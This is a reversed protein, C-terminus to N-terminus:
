PTRPMPSETSIRTFLWHLCARPNHGRRLCSGLSYFIASRHGAIVDAIFLWNKKDHPGPRISTTGM